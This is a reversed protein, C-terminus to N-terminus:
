AAGWIGLAPLFIPHAAIAPSFVRTGSKPLSPRRARRKRSKADRAALELAAEKKVKQRLKEIVM